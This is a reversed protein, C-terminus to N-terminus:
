AQAGCCAADRSHQMLRRLLHVATLLRWAFRNQRRAMGDIRQMVLLSRQMREFVVPVSLPFRQVGGLSRQMVGLLALAFVLSRQM